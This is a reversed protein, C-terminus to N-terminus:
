IKDIIGNIWNKIRDASLILAIIVLSIGILWPDSYIRKFLSKTVPKNIPAAITQKTKAMKLSRDLSQTGYNDGGIYNKAIVNPKNNKTMREKKLRYYKEFGGNKIFRDTYNDIWLKQYNTEKNLVNGINHENISFNCIQNYFYEYEELSLQFHNALYQNDYEYGKTNNLFLLISDLKLIEDNSLEIM